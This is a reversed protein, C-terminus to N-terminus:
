IVHSAPPDANYTIAVNYTKVTEVTCITKHLTKYVASPGDSAAPTGRPGSKFFQGLSAMKTM